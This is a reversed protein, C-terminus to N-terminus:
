NICLVYRGPDYSYYYLKGRHDVGESGLWVFTSINTGNPSSLAGWFAVMFAFCQNAKWVEEGGQKILQYGYNKFGNNQGVERM